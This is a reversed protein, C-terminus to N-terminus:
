GYLSLPHNGSRTTVTHLSTKSRQPKLAIVAGIIYCTSALSFFVLNFFFRLYVRNNNRCYTISTNSTFLFAVVQIQLM